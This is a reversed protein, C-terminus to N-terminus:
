GLGEPVLGEGVPEEADLPSATGQLTGASSAPASTATGSPPTPSCTSSSSSSPAPSPSWHGASAGGDPSAATASASSRTPARPQPPSRAEPPGKLWPDGKGPSAATAKKGSQRTQPCLKARSVLRGATGFVTMDLGIEAIIAMAAVPGCGTIEDLRAVAPLAIADPEQGAGPGTARDADIGWAAPIQAILEGARATLGEIDRTLGDVHRLLIRAEAAHHDQFRGDLAEVLAKRKARMKGGALDALAGPNREGAILAEIMDRCSMTDIASAVSTVKILARELLKELRSWHRTREAM